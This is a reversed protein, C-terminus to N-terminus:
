FSLKQPFLLPNSIFLWMVFRFFILFNWDFNLLFSLFPSPLSIELTTTFPMLFSLPLLISHSFSRLDRFSLATNQSIIRTEWKLYCLQFSSCPSYLPISFLFFFRLISPLPSLPTIWSRTSPFSMKSNCNGQLSPRLPNYLASLLSQLLVLKQYHCFAAALAELFHVLDVSSITSTSVINLCEFDRRAIYLINILKVDTYFVYFINTSAPLSKQFSFIHSIDFLCFLSYM